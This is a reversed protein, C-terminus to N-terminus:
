CDGKLLWWSADAVMKLSLATPQFSFVDGEAMKHWGDGEIYIQEMKVDVM